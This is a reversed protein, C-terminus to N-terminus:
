AAAYDTEAFECGAPQLSEWLRFVAVRIESDPAVSAVLRLGSPSFLSRFFSHDRTLKRSHMGCRSFGVKIQNAKDARSFDHGKM